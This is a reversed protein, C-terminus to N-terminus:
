GSDSFKLMPIALTATVPKEPPVVWVSLAPDIAMVLTSGASTSAEIAM